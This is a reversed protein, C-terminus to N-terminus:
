GMSATLVLTMPVSLTNSAAIALPTLRTTQRLVSLATYGMLAMPVEFAIISFTITPLDRFKGLSITM